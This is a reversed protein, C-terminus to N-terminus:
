LYEKILRGLKTPIGFQFIVYMVETRVSDDIKKFNEFLYHVTVSYKWKTRWFRIYTSYRTM